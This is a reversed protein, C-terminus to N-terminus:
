SKFNLNNFNSTTEGFTELIGHFKFNLGQCHKAFEETDGCLNKSFPIREIRERCFFTQSFTAYNQYFESIHNRFTELLHKPM